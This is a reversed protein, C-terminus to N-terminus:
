IEVGESLLTQVRLSVDVDSRPYMYSGDTLQPLVLGLLDNYGPFRGVPKCSSRLPGETRYPDPLSLPFQLVLVFFCNILRLDAVRIECVLYSAPGEEVLKALQTVLKGIKM